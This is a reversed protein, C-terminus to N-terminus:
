EFGCIDLVTNMVSVLYFHRFYKCPVKEEILL